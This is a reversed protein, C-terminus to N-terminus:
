QLRMGFAGQARPPMENTIVRGGKVMVQAVAVYQRDKALELVLWESVESIEVKERIGDSPASGPGAYILIGTKNNTVSVPKTLDLENDAWKRAKEPTNRAPGRFVGKWQEAM